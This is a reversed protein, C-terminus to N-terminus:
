HQHLQPYVYFIILYSFPDTYVGLDEPSVELRTEKANENSRIRLASKNESIVYGKEGYVEMDKRDFPWNWSAQIIAQADGYDLLITAEDDVKPYTDPKFTSTLATVSKPKKGQMLYTMINAGYCGFDVLAGGGNLQPDTLWELFDKGVGIEQPGKHGHHFVAKRIAGFTQKEQFLQFTKEMSAYWSTEFNTLLHIGHKKALTEMKEAHDSWATLPKEVMVHIKRPAAAEVVSLHDFISGFALVAEPKTEDLMENLDTFFLHEGLHYLQAYSKALDVNPEFIGVWEVDTKVKRQFIWDAHGHSLGAVAMRVPKPTQSLALGSVLLMAAILLKKMHDYYNNIHIRFV